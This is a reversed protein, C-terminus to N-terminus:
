KVVPNENDGMHLLPLPMSASGDMFYIKSAPDKSIEKLAELAQLKIYAPSDAIAKNIAEIEYAQADALIKVQEAQETAAAKEAAAQVAKQEMETKFRLLEAKQEEAQQERVKKNKIADQIHGPLEINRILVSVITAYKGVKNQLRTQLNAQMTAQISEDFLEECRNVAKGESRLQSRLNPALKVNVIDQALGVDSKADPCATGNIRYIVSIDIFSTQQDKTPIPVKPVDLNKERIDYASWELLPNVPFNLGETYVKDSVNGFLSAVAVHGADVTKVCNCGGMLLALGLVGVISLMVISKVRM